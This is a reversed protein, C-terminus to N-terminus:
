ETYQAGARAQDFLYYVIHSLPQASKLVSDKATAPVVDETGNSLKLKTGVTPASWRMDMQAARIWDSPMKSKGNWAWKTNGFPRSGAVFNLREGAIAYLSMESFPLLDPASMWLFDPQEAYEASRGNEKARNGWEGGLVNFAEDLELDYTYETSKKKDKSQSDTSDDRNEEPWIYYMYDVEAKVGLLYRTNPNRRARYADKVRSVEVLSKSLSGEDGTAPNFYKLRYASVPHNNIKLNNDIDMVFGMRDKGIRNLLTLHFVGADLDNCRIDKVMGNDTSSPDGNEDCKRGAFKYNMTTFYPTNTRAFLYSGLAKLDDPYFAIRHGLAGTVVVPRIPRPLYISAPSWGDCIGSWYALSNGKERWYRYEIKDDYRSYTDLDDEFPTNDDGASESDDGSGTRKTTMRYKQRFDSEDMVARTFTFNLDGLLLDYKEAPSLERAIEEANWKGAKMRSEVKKFDYELRIKAVSYRLMFNLGSFVKSHTRYHNAIGGNIDPWYSGSWPQFESSARDLSQESAQLVSIVQPSHGLLDALKSQIDRTVGAFASPTALGFVIMLLLYNM